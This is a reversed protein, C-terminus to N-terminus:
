PSISTTLRFQLDTPLSTDYPPNSYDVRGFYALADSGGTVPMEATLDGTGGHAGTLRRTASGVGQALMLGFDGGSPQWTVRARLRGSLPVAVRVVKCPPGCVWGELEAWTDGSVNFSPDNPFLTATLVQGAPARIVRQLSVDVTMPRNMVVHIPGPAEFGEKNFSLDSRGLRQFEYFGKENTLTTRGFTEVLVDALPNGGGSEIITGSLTYPSEPIVVTPTPSPQLFNRLDSNAERPQCGFTVSLAFFCGALRCRRATM